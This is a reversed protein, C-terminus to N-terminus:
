IYHTQFIFRPDKEWRKRLGIKEIDTYIVLSVGNERFTGTGQAETSLVAKNNDDIIQLPGASILPSEYKTNLQVRISEYDLVLSERIAMNHHIYNKIKYTEATLPGLLKKALLKGKSDMLAVQATGDKQDCSLIKVSYDGLDVTQGEKIYEAIVPPNSTIKLWNVEPAGAEKIQIGTPDVREVVVYTCSSADYSDGFYQLPPPTNLGEDDMYGSSVSVKSKGHENKCLVVRKDWGPHGNAFVFRLIGVKAGFFSDMQVTPLIAITGEEGLSVASRGFHAFFNKKVALAEEQDVFFNIEGAIVCPEGNLPGFYEGGNEMYILGGPPIIIKGDQIRSQRIMFGEQVARMTGHRNPINKLGLFKPMESPDVYRADRSPLKYHASNDMIVQGKRILLLLSSFIM